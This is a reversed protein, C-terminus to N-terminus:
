LVLLVRVNLNQAALICVFTSAGIVRLGASVFMGVRSLVCMFSLRYIFVLSETGATFLFVVVVGSQLPIM